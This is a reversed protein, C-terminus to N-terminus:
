VRTKSIVGTDDVHMVYKRRLIMWFGVVETWANCPTHESRRVAHILHITQHTRGYFFGIRAM